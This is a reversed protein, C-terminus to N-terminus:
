FGGPGYIAEDLEHALRMAKNPAPQGDSGDVVDFDEELEDRVYDMAARYRRLKAKLQTIEALRKDIIQGLQELSAMNEEFTPAARLPAPTVKEASPSGTATLHDM